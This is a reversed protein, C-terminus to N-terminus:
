EGSAITKLLPHPHAKNYRIIIEDANKKTIREGAFEPDSLIVQKIKNFEHDLHFVKGNNMDVVYDHITTKGDYPLGMTAPESPSTGDPVQKFTGGPRNKIYVFYSFAGVSLLRFLCQKESLANALVKHRVYVHGNYTIVWIDKTPFTKLENTETYYSIESFCIGEADNAHHTVEKGFTICRIEPQNRAFQAADTYIGTKASDNLQQPLEFQALVPHSALFIVLAIPLFFKRM